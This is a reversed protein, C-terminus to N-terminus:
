GRWGGGGGWGGWCCNNAGLDVRILGARQAGMLYLNIDVVDITLSRPLVHVHTLQANNSPLAHV